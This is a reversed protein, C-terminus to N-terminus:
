SHEDASLEEETEKRAFYQEAVLLIVTVHLFSCWVAAFLGDPLASVLAMAAALGLMWFGWRWWNWLGIAAVPLLGFSIYYAINRAGIREDPNDSAVSSFIGVALVAVSVLSLIALIIRFQRAEM